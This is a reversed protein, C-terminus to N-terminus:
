DRESSNPSAEGYSVLQVHPYSLIRRDLTVLACDYVRATAVIIQDAPDRHFSGPLQTSEVAIRPSLELLRMGPYALAQDLWDGTPVPLSLRNLEVLKAIEWCSIASIGLGNLEHSQIYEKHASPLNADDHVWWVWIHTDLIIM